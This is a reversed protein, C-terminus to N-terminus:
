IMKIIVLTVYYPCYICGGVLIRNYGLCHLPVITSFKLVATRKPDGQLTDTSKKLYAEEEPTLNVKM